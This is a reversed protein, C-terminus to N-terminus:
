FKIYKRSSSIWEEHIDLLMAGILRNASEVNPFIRVVKEGRRIEQNLREILNTSKLRSNGKGVITYQFADEFGEDLIQCAKEYRKKNTFSSVLKNKATRALEIDTFRFIAKLQERFQKSDKKPVVQLINRMFHVECRQWSAGTFAKRIASVLGKHADSIVLETGNLGREKLYEFFKIWSSESEGNQMLGIIERDGQETIGIAIHCSKSVVRHDERVKIYLM